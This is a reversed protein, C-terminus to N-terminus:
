SALGSGCYQCVSVEGTAVINRAGCSACIIDKQEKEQQLEQPVASLIAEVLQNVDLTDQVDELEIEREVEAQQPKSTRRSITNTEDDIYAYAIFKKKMMKEINKRVVPAPEELMLALQDISHTSRENLVEIYTEFKRGFIKRRIGCILTYLSICFIILIWIVAGRVSPDYGLIALWSLLGFLISLTRGVKIQKLSIKRNREVVRESKENEFM